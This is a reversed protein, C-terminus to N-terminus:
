YGSQRKSKKAVFALTVLAVFSVASIFSGIKLSFPEYKIEVTTNGNPVLIAMQNINAPLIKTENGNVFAKWGPDYNQNIVLFGSGTTGTEIKIERSSVTQSIIKWDKLTPNNEHNKELIIEQQPNFNKSVYTELIEPVNKKVQFNSTIFFGSKYKLNKFVFMKDGKHTTEFAKEVHPSEIPYPSILFEVGDAALSTLAGENARVVEDDFSFGRRTLLLKYSYRRTILPSNVSFHNIDFILNSNEELANRAFNYYEFNKEWGENLFVKNWARNNEITYVRGTAGTTKLYQAVQPPTVWDRAPTIPNYNWFKAALEVTSVLLVAFYLLKRKAIKDIYISSIVILAFTTFILARSPVRFMSFPPISFVPHLPSDKGLAFLVTLVILVAFATIERRYKTRSKLNVFIVATALILPVVGIYVTTEWFVSWRGEEWVPYTGFKPNGLIYPDLFQLLNIPRYPFTELIKRPNSQRTSNQLFEFSPLLQIASLSIALGIALSLKIALFFNKKFFNSKVAQYIALAVLSYFTTQFHGAFIQQSLLFSLVLLTTTKRSKFYTNSLYFFWPIFSAAQILNIHQVHLIFFASIPFILTGYLSSPKRLNLSRLFLYTGFSTFVLSTSLLMNFALSFPLFKLFILNPLFFVGTQGEALTPYGMGIESSWVPLRNKKLRESLNYKNAISSHWADSRGYDPPLYFSLEPIFLRYFFVVFFITIALFPRLNLFKGM